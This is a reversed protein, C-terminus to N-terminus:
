KIYIEKFRKESFVLVLEQNTKLEQSKFHLSHWNDFIYNIIDMSGTNIDQINKINKNFFPSCNENCNGTKKMKLFINYLYFKFDNLNKIDYNFNIDALTSYDLAIKIKYSPIFTDWIEIASRKKRRNEDHIYSNASYYSSTDSFIEIDGNKNLTGIDEKPSLINFAIWIGNNVFHPNTILNLINNLLTLKPSFYGAIAGATGGVGVEIVKVATTPWEYGLRSLADTLYAAFMGFSASVLGRLIKQNTNPNNKIWNIIVQINNANIKLIWNLGWIKVWSVSNSSWNFILSDHNEIPIAVENNNRKDRILTKLNNTQQYSIDSNINEEKQYYSAAITTPVATGSITLVSLLSLLKKM